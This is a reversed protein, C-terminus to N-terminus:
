WKICVIEHITDTLWIGVGVERRAGWPAKEFSLLQALVVGHALELCHLAVWQDLAHMHLVHLVTQCLV